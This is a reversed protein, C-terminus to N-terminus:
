AKGFAPQCNAASGKCSRNAPAVSGLVRCGAGMNLLGAPLDGGSLCPMMEAHSAPSTHPQNGSCCAYQCSAAETRQQQNLLCQQAFGRAACILLILKHQQVLRACEFRTSPADCASIVVM